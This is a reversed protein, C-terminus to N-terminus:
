TCPVSESIVFITLTSMYAHILPSPMLVEIKLLDQKSPPM